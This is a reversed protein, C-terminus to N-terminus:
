NVKYFDMNVQIKERFKMIEMKQEQTYRKDLRDPYFEKLREFVEIFDKKNNKEMIESYKSDPISIDFFKNVCPLNHLKPKSIVFNIFINLEQLRDM